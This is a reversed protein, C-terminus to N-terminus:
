ALSLPETVPRFRDRAQHVTLVTIGLARVQALLAADAPTCIGDLADEDVVACDVTGELTDARGHGLALALERVEDLTASNGVFVVDGKISTAAQDGLAHSM